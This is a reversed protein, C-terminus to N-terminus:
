RDCLALFFPYQCLKFFCCCVIDLVFFHMKGYFQSHVHLYIKKEYKHNPLLIISCKKLCSTPGLFYEFIKLYNYHKTTKGSRSVQQMHKHVQLINVDLSLTCCRSIGKHLVSINNTNYTCQPFHFSFM